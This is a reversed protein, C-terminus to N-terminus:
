IYPHVLIFFVAAANGHEMLIKAMPRTKWVGSTSRGGSLQLQLRAWLALGCCPWVFGFTLFLRRQTRTKQLISDPCCGSVYRCREHPEAEAGSQPYARRPRLSDPSQKQLIHIIYIENTNLLYQRIM